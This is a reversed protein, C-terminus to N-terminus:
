QQHQEVDPKRLLELATRVSQEIHEKTCTDVTIAREPDFSAMEELTMALCPVGTAPHLSFPVKILHAMDTTVERDIRPHLCRLVVEEYLYPRKEVYRRLSPTSRFNNITDRLSDVGFNTAKTWEQLIQPPFDWGTFFKERREDVRFLQQEEVVLRFLPFLEREIINNRFFVSLDATATRLHKTQDAIYDALNARMWDRAKGIDNDCVWCHVGRRGSYFWLVSQFRMSDRLFADLVRAAAYALRWCKACCKKGKCCYRVDADYDTLDIDFQLERQVVFEALKAEGRLRNTLEAPKPYVGGVDIQVFTPYRMLLERWEAENAVSNFRHVFTRSPTVVTLSIERNSTKWLPQNDHSLLRLVFQFPFFEAYYRQIKRTDTM